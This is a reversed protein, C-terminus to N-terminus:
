TSVVTIANVTYVKSWSWDANHFTITWTCTEGVTSIEECFHDLGSQFRYAIQYTNDETLLMTDQGSHDWSTADTTDGVRTWNVFFTEENGDSVFVYEGNYKINYDSEFYITALDDANAGTPPIPTVTFNMATFNTVFEYSATGGENINLPVTFVTESADLV